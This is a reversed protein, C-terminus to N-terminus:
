PAPNVVTLGEAAAITCLAQDACVFVVPRAPENLSLAVALQLADLTRLNQAVGVRRILREAAEHHRVLARVVQWRGARIDARFRRTQRDFDVRALQGVRVKKAFASHVEVAALRSIIQRGPLALLGDVVATGTEAHYHKTIASTDFFHDPM